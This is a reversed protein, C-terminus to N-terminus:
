LAHEKNSYTLFLQYRARTIAVYFLRREALVENKKRSPFIDDNLNMCFVVDWELGKASHFTSLTVASHLTSVAATGEEDSTHYSCPIAQKLLSEEM